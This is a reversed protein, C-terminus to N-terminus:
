DQARRFAQWVRGIGFLVAPVLVAVLLLTELREEPVKEELVLLTVINLAAVVIWLVSFLLWFRQWLLLPKREGTDDVSKPM